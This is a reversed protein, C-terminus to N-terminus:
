VEESVIRQEPIEVQRWESEPKRRYIRKQPAASRQSM